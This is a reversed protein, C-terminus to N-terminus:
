VDNSGCPGGWGKSTIVLPKYERHSSPMCVVFDKITARKGPSAMFNLLVSSVPVLAAVSRSRGMSELM